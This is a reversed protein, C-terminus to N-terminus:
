WMLHKVVEDRTTEMQTVFRTMCKIRDTLVLYLRVTTLRWMQVHVAELDKKEGMFPIGLITPEIKRYIFNHFVASTQGDWKESVM